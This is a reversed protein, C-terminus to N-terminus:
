LRVEGGGGGSGSVELRGEIDSSGNLKLSVAEAELPRQIDGICSKVIGGESVDLDLVRVGETGLLQAVSM